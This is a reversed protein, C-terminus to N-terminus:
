DAPCPFEARLASFIAISLNAEAAESHAAIYRLITARLDEQPVEPPLCFGAYQPRLDLVDDYSEALGLQALMTEIGFSHGDIYGSIMGACLGEAFETGHACVDLLDSGRVGQATAIQPSAAAIAICIAAARRARM